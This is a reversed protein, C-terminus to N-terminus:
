VVWTEPPLVRQLLATLLVRVRVRGVTAESQLAQRPVLPGPKKKEPPATALTEPTRVEDVLAVQGATVSFSTFEVWFLTSKRPPQSLALGGLNMDARLTILFVTQISGDCGEVLESEARKPRARKEELMEVPVPTCIRTGSPGSLAWEYGASVTDLLVAISAARCSMRSASLWRFQGDPTVRGASAEPLVGM